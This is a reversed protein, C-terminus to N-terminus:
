HDGADLCLMVPRGGEIAYAPLNSNSACIKGDKTFTLDRLFTVRTPSPYSTFTKSKPDFRLIRDSQNTTIWIHGTDPHVNLAYPIEYEGSALLPLKFTTFVETKTDFQMLGGENFAPIWLKGEKDFRLRRPGSMPSDYETVEFTKPDVVGIKGAYLKSYWIEGTHPHIDIGYPFNLIKRGLGTYWHHSMWIHTNQQPFWSAIKLVTPFLADTLWRFFGNSPLDILSFKATKPDFRGIQNSAPVTFWLIGHKDRRITHPYLADGGIEYTKFKKTEINFSLLTSSLSGTIWFTKNDDEVLSHPGHKGTFIGIPLQAGSYLGGLPLDIDPMQHRITKGTKRDLEWIVDHGQDVGYLRGDSGVETDHIFSNGDGVQWEEIKTSDLAPSVIHSQKGTVPKGDFGKALVKKFTQKDWPTIVSFYGEMRKIIEDWEEEDRPQRTIENGIQHCYHCQSIFTAQRAKDHWKLKTVHASASLSDSIQEPTRLPQIILSLKIQSSAGLELIKTLDALHPARVRLSLQGDSRTSLAFRGIKDSYVTIKSNNKEDILSVMAGAVPAGAPTAVTGFLTAAMLPSDPALTLAM